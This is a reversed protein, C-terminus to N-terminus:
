YLVRKILPRVLRGSHSNVRPPSHRSKPRSIFACTVVETTVCGSPGDGDECVGAVPGWGSAPLDVGGCTEALRGLIWKSGM